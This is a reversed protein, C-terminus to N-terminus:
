GTLAFSSVAHNCVSQIRPYDDATSTCSLSYAVGDKVTFSDVEVADLKAAVSTSVQVHYSFSEAALGAMSIHSISTPHGGGPLAAVAQQVGAQIQDLAAADSGTSQLDIRRVLVNPAFKTHAIVARGADSMDLGMLTGPTHLIASFNKALAQMEPHGEAYKSLGGADAIASADVTRWAPPLEFSYGGGDPRYVKWGTGTTSVAAPGSKLGSSTNGCAALAPLAVALVLVTIRSLM